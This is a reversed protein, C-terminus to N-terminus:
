SLDESWVSVSAHEHFLMQGFVRVIMTIFFGRVLVFVGVIMSM